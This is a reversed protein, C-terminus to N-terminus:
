RQQASPLIRSPHLVVRHHGSKLMATGLLENRFLVTALVEGSGPDPHSADAPLQIRQGQVFRRALDDELQVTPLMGLWQQLPLVSKEPEAELQEINVMMSEPWGGTSIRRLATVCGGMDLAQGIDRALSRIYTGKSCAVELSVIPFTFDILRIAHVSVPRAPIVVTEGNRAMAHARKGDIRIASYAPPIQNIDGTFDNLVQQLQEPNVAGDFHALTEGECDLTDTQYTLDFSVTYTKDANLGMEAFRTAEGLLVPLM